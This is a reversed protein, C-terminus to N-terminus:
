VFSEIYDEFQTLLLTKKRQPKIGAKSLVERAIVSAAKGKRKMGLTELKLASKLVLLNAKHINEKGTIIITENTM